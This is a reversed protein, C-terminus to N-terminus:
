FIDPPKLAASRLSSLLSPSPSASLFPFSLLGGRRPSCTVRGELPIVAPPASTFGIRLPALSNRVSLLNWMMDWPPVPRPCPPRPRPPGVPCERFRLVNMCPPRPQTEQSTGKTRGIYVARGLSDARPERSFEMLVSHQSSSSPPLACFSPRNRTSGRSSAFRRRGEETADTM